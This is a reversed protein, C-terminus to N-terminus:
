AYINRTSNKSILINHNPKFLHRKLSDRISISVHQNQYTECDLRKRTVSRAIQQLCSNAIPMLIKGRSPCKFSRWIYQFMPTQPLTSRTTLSRPIRKPSVFLQCWENGRHGSPGCFLISLLCILKSVSECLSFKLIRARSGGLSSQHFMRGPDNTTSCNKRSGMQERTSLKQGLQSARPKIHFPLPLLDKGTPIGIVGSFHSPQLQFHRLLAYTSAKPCYSLGSIHSRRWTNVVISFSLKSGLCM